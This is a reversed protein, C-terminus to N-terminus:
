MVGKRFRYGSYLISISFLLSLVTFEPLSREYLNYGFLYFLTDLYGYVILILLIRKRWLPETVLMSVAFYATIGALFWPASTMLVSWLVEKPFYIQVIIILLLLTIVFLSILSVFGVSLMQLLVNNEKVPLHFTLKLRNASMEPMFQALALIIGSLVPLYMLGHYFLRQRFVVNYWYVRAEMFKMDHSVNLLINLLLFLAIVALFFTAWRIKLWEKFIIAKFM